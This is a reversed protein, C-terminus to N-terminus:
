HEFYCFSDINRLWKWIRLSSFPFSTLLDVGEGVKNEVLYAQCTHKSHLYYM